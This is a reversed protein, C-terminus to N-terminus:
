LINKREDIDGGKRETWEREEMFVIENLDYAQLHGKFVILAYQPSTDKLTGRLLLNPKGRVKFSVKKGIFPKFANENM